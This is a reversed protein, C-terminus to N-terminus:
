GAAVPYWAAQAGPLEPTSVSVTVVVGDTADAPVILSVADGLEGRYTVPVEVGDVFARAGGETPGGPFTLEQGPALSTGPPPTSLPGDDEPLRQIQMAATAGDPAGLGDDLVFAAARRTGDDDGAVATVVPSAVQWGPSPTVLLEPDPAAVLWAHSDAFTEVTAREGEAGSGTMTAYESVLAAAADIEGARLHTLFTRVLEQAAGVVEPTLAPGDLVAGPTPGPPETTSSTSPTTATSATSGTPGPGESPPPGASTRETPGDDNATVAWGVGLVLVTTLAVVLAQGRRRRRDRHAPVAALLDRRLRDEFTEPANM